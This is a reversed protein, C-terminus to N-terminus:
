KRFYVGVEIVSFGSRDIPKIIPKQISEMVSKPTIDLHIRNTVNPSPTILIPLQTDLETQDLLSIKVYKTKQRNYLANKVDTLLAQAELPKLKLEPIIDNQVTRVADDWGVVYGTEQQSFEIKDADYEYYLYSVKHDDQVLEGSTGAAVNWSKNMAPFTYLTNAPKVSVFSRFEPYLFIAPSNPTGGSIYCDETYRSLKGLNARSNDVYVWNLNGLNKPFIDPKSAYENIKGESVLASIRNAVNNAVEEAKEYNFGVNDILKTRECDFYPANGKAHLQSIPCSGGNMGRFSSKVGAPTSANAGRGGSQYYRAVNIIFQEEVATFFHQKVEDISEIPFTASQYYFRTPDVGSSLVSSRHQQVVTLQGLGPIDLVVTNGELPACVFQESDQPPLDPQPTPTFQEQVPISTPTIEEPEFTDLQLNRKNEQANVPKLFREQLKTVWRKIKSEPKITIFSTKDRLAPVTQTFAVTYGTSLQAFGRLTYMPVLHQQSTGPLNELYSLSIETITAANAQAKNDQYVKEWDVRGSGMPLTLSLQAEGNEVATIAEEVTLLESRNVNIQEDILRLNSVISMITGDERVAVTATNFDNPRVKGNAESGTSVNIISDDNLSDATVEGVRFDSVKSTMPTNIIGVPNYIPLGTRGWDRHCEVYTLGPHLKKQYTIGCTVTSDAVGIEQLVSSAVLRPNSGSYTEARLAGYSDYSFSGSPRHFTLLGRKEINQNESVAVYDSSTTHLENLGLKAGIELIQGDSFDSKLKYTRITSPILPLDSNNEYQDFNLEPAQIPTSQLATPEQEVISESTQKSDPLLILVAPLVVLVLSVLVIALIRRHKKLFEKYGQLKQSVGM